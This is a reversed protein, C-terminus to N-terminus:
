HKDDFDINVEPSSTINNTQSNNNDQNQDNTQDQTNTNTNNNENDNTNNNTNENENENEIGIVNTNTNDLDIEIDGICGCPCPCVLDGPDVAFGNIIVCSVDVAGTDPITVSTGTGDVIGADSCVIVTTFGDADAGSITESIDYVGPAVDNLSTTGDCPVTETQTGITIEFTAEFGEGVCVKTVSIDPLAPNDESPINTYTCVITEFSEGSGTDVEFSFSQGDIANPDTCVLSGFTAGPTTDLETITFTGDDPCFVEALLQAPTLTFTGGDMVVIPAEAGAQVICSLGAPETTLMYTFVANPDGGPFLKEVQINGDVLCLVSETITPDGTDTSGATIDVLAPGNPCDIVIELTATFTEPTTDTDLAGDGYAVCAVGGGPGEGGACVQPEPLAPAPPAPDCPDAGVVCTLPTIGDAFDQSPETGQNANSVFPLEGWIFVNSGATGTADDDDGTITAIVSGGDIVVNSDLTFTTLDAEADKQGILALAGAIAIAFVVLPLM